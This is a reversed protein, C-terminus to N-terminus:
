PQRTRRLSPSALGPGAGGWGRGTGPPAHSLPAHDQGPPPTAEPLLPAWPPAARKANTSRRGRTTRPRRSCGGGPDASPSPPVRRPAGRAAHSPWSPPHLALTLLQSRNRHNPPATIPSLYHHPASPVTIPSQNHHPAPSVTLSAPTPQSPGSLTHSSPSSTIPLQSQSYPSQLTQSPALLLDSPGPAARPSQLPIPLRESSGPLPQPVPRLPSPQVAPLSESPGLAAKVPHPIAQPRSPTATLTGAHSGPSSSSSQPVPSRSGSSPLPDQFLKSPHPAARPKQSAPRLTRSPNHLSLSHSHPDWLLQPLQLIATSTQPFLQQPDTRLLQNTATCPCPQSTVFVWCLPMPLHTASPDPSSPTGARPATSPAKALGAQIHCHSQPWCHQVSAWQARLGGALIDGLRRLHGPMGAGACLAGRAARHQWCGRIPCIGASGLAKHALWTAVLRAASGAASPSPLPLGPCPKAKGPGHRQTLSPCVAGEWGMSLSSSTGPESGPSSGARAPCGGWHQVQQRTWSARDAWHLHSGARPLKHPTGPLASLFPILRAGAELDTESGAHHSHHKPQM